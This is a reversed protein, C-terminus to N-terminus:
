RREIKCADPLAGEPIVCNQPVSLVKLCRCGLFANEDISTVSDPLIIKWLGWCGEFTRAKIMTVGNPINIKEMNRCGSFAGEGISTVGEPLIIEYLNGCGKFADKGIAVVYKPVSMVDGANENCKILVGDVIKLVPTNALDAGCSPCYQWGGSPRGCNPCYDNM